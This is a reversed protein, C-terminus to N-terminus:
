TKQPAFSLPPRVIKLGFSIRLNLQKHLLRAIPGHQVAAFEIDGVKESIEGQRSGPPPDAFLFEPGVAQGLAIRYNM